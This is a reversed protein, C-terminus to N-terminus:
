RVQEGEDLASRARGIGPSVMCSRETLREPQCPGIWKRSHIPTWFLRWHELARRILELCVADDDDLAQPDAHRVVLTNTEEIAV